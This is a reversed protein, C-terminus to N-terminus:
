TKWSWSTIRFLTCYKTVTPLGRNLFFLTKKPYGKQLHDPSTTTERQHNTKQNENKKPLIHWFFTMHTRGWVVKKSNSCLSKYSTIVFVNTYWTRLSHHIKNVKETQFMAAIKQWCSMSFVMTTFCRCHGVVHPGLIARRLHNTQISRFWGFVWPLKKETPVKYENLHNKGWCGLDHQIRQGAIFHTCSLTKQTCNWTTQQVLTRRFLTSYTGKEVTFMKFDILIKCGHFIWPVYPSIKSIKQKTTRKRFM